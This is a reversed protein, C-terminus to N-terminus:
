QSLRRLQWHPARSVPLVSPATMRGANPQDSSVLHRCVQLTLESSVATVSTSENRRSRRKFDRNRKEGTREGTGPRGRLRVKQRRPAGGSLFSFQAFESGLKPLYSHRTPGHESSQEGHASWAPAPQPCPVQLRRTPPLVDEECLEDGGGGQGSGGVRPAAAEWALAHGGPTHPPRSSVSGDLTPSADARLM